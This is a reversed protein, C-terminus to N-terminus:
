TGNQNLETEILNKVINNQKECASGFSFLSTSTKSTDRLTYIEYSTVKTCTFMQVTSCKKLAILKGRVELSRFEQWGEKEM